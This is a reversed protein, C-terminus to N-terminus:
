CFILLQIVSVICVYLNSIYTKILKNDSILICDSIISLEYLLIFYKLYEFGLLVVIKVAACIVLIKSAHSSPAFFRGSGM